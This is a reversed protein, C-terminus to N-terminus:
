ALLAYVVLDEYRDWKLVHERLVGERTMGLKQMVRGSALNHAIHRAVIRHLGLEHIGYQVIAQAAETAYGRGWYPVGIWYGLEACHDRPTLVLGVAGVLEGSGLETVALTVSQGEAFSPGHTAIWQEALGDEYPHPVNLTTAAIERAGALRQVVPADAV